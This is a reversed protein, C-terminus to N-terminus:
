GCSAAQGIPSAGGRAIDPNQTSFYDALVGCILLQFPHYFMVPLVILGLNRKVGFILQVLPVGMALHM